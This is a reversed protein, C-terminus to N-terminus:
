NSIRLRTAVIEAEQRSRLIESYRIFMGEHEMVNMLTRLAKTAGLPKRITFAFSKKGGVIGASSLYESVSTPIKGGFLSIGPAGVALYEYGTLKTNSDKEADILDVHHAEKELGRVLGNAVDVIRERSKGGFFVVAVRM